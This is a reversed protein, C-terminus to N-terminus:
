VIASWRLRIENMAKTTTASTTEATASSARERAGLAFGAGRQQYGTVEIGRGLQM